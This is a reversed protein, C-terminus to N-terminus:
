LDFIETDSDNIHDLIYREVEEYMDEDFTHKECLPYFITRYKGDKAGYKQSNHPTFVGKNGTVRGCLICNSSEKIYGELSM